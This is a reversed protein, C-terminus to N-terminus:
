EGILPNNEIIIDALYFAAFALCLIGWIILDIYSGALLIAFLAAVCYLIMASLAGGRKHYNRTAIGVIGATLMLLATILGATGGVEGTNAFFNHVGAACSQFAIFFCLFICLIGILLKGTKM